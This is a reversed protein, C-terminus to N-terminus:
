DNSYVKLIDGFKPSEWCAIVGDNGATWLQHFKSSWQISTCSDNLPGLLESHLSSKRGSSDLIDRSRKLRNESNPSVSEEEQIDALVIWNGSPIAYM